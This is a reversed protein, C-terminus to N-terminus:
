TTLDLLTQFSNNVHWYAFLVLTSELIELSKSVVISKRRFPALWHRQRGNNRKIAVTEAKSQILMDEPILKQYTGFHDTYFIKMKYGRLRSVLDVLAGFDRKGFSFAVLEGTERCYAKGIWLKQKKSQLFHWMEDMEITVLNGKPKPMLKEYDGMERIWNCVSQCSVGM